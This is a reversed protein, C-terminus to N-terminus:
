SYSPEDQIIEGPIAADASLTVMFGQFGGETMEEIYVTCGDEGGVVQPKTTGDSDQKKLTELVWVAEADTEATKLSGITPNDTDEKRIFYSVSGSHGSAVDRGDLTTSTEAEDAPRDGGDGIKLAPIENTGDFPSSSAEFPNNTDGIAFAIKSVKDRIQPM